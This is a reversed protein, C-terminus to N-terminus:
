RWLGDNPSGICWITSIQRWLGFASGLIKFKDAFLSDLRVDSLLNGPPRRGLTWPWISESAGHESKGGARKKPDLVGSQPIQRAVSCFITQKLLYPTSVCAPYIGPPRRGLTWPWISESAGHKTMEVPGDNHSGIRWIESINRWLWLLAWL